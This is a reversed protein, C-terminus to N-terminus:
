VRAELLDRSLMSPCWHREIYEVVLETGRDHSVYPARAPNYMTDTLDRILVCRIGWATMQKIAFSRNLVCMNTHVGMVILNAIGLAHLFSYVEEGDDSIVDSEAIEIGAHQRTWARRQTEDGTDCGGDSDDIPLPPPIPLDLPEPTEVRPTDVIRRRQPTFAYFQMTGSPAHIVQVGAKRASAVVENMRGVMADLRRAAGSCWHDDWVDCLLLATEDAPFSKPVTVRDWLTSGERSVVQTQLNLLLHNDTTEQGM